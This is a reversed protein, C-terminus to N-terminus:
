GPPLGREISGLLEKADDDGLAIARNCWYSAMRRNGTNLYTISLNYAAEAIGQSAAEKYLRLATRKEKESMGDMSLINARNVKGQIAGARSAMKYKQAAAAFDGTDELENGEALYGYAKNESM